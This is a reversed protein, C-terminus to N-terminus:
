ASPAIRRHRIVLRLHPGRNGTRPDGFPRLIVSADGDRTRITGSYTLTRTDRDLAGSWDEVRVVGPTTEIEKRIVAGISAVNPPKQEFWGFYPLGVDKDALWEGRVTRLRRGVRQVILDFGSVHRTRVPLDGDDDLQVDFTEATAM